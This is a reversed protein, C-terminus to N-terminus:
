KLREIEKKYKTTLTDVDGYCGDSLSIGLEGISILALALHESNLDEDFEKAEFNIRSLFYFIASIHSLKILIIENENELRELETQNEKNKSSSFLEYNIRVRSM